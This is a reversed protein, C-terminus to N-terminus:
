YLQQIHYESNIYYVPLFYHKVKGQMIKGVISVSNIQVAFGDM